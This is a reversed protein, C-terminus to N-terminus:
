ATLFASAEKASRQEKRRLRITFVVSTLLISLLLGNILAIVVNDLIPEKIAPAQVLFLVLTCAGFCIWYPSTHKNPMIRKSPLWWISCLVLFGGILSNIDWFLFYTMNRDKPTVFKNFGSASQVMPVTHHTLKDWVLHSATGLLLSLLVIQWNKRFWNMWNLPQFNALKRKLFYPANNYFPDRILLHYLFCLLLGAPVDIYFLGPWTHSYFSKHFDRVFYEFDPVLSGAILGTISLKKRSFYHLPLIAAPHSFTFPM